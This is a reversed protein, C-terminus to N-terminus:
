LVGFIALATGYIHVPMQGDGTTATVYRADIDSASLGASASGAFGIDGTSCIPKHAMRWTPNLSSSHSSPRDLGIRAAIRPTVITRVAAALGLALWPRELSVQGSRPASPLAAIARQRDQTQHQLNQNIDAFFGFLKKNLYKTRFVRFM